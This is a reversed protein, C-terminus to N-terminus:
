RGRVQTPRITTVVVGVLVIAMSIYTTANVEAEASHFTLDIVLSGVLNGFLSMLSLLLVGLHAVTVTTVGIFAVGLLGGFLVWAEAPIEPLAAIRTGTLLMVASAVVLAIGGVIFNTTTAAIASRAHQKLRGNAAQQFATAVGAVLPLIPAWLPVGQAIVGIASLSVGLLVVISGVIRPATLHKRGGPPLDTNDVILAGVLQGSVFAMTFVAVGMLPVTLAQSMVIAAGGLGGLFMWWPMERSVLARVARAFGSRGAPAVLTVVMLLLLGVLFSVTAAFVGSGLIEGLTGNATSQVAMGIGASITAAASVAVPLGIRPRNPVPIRESPRGGM